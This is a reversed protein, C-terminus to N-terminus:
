RSASAIQTASGASQDTHVWWASRNISFIPKYHSIASARTMRKIQNDLVMPGQETYVILIAHPIGKELDKVIAVRLLSEPVGLARLSAYKAIAFDECDGGRTMFEVPTEWYDSRGWNRNDGIYHVKNMLDNVGNAMDVLSQGRFQALGNRWNQIVGQNSGNAVDRQFRDFMDRWKTFASLDGSRKEGTGFLATQVVGDAYNLSVSALTISSPIDKMSGAHSPKAGFSSLSAMVAMTAAAVRLSSQVALTTKLDWRSILGQSVLIEGLAKGSALGRKQQLLAEKLQQPTLLGRRVLVEGIRHSSLFHRFGSFVGFRM